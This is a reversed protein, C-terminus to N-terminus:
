VLKIFKEIGPRSSVYFRKHMGCIQFPLTFPSSISSGACADMVRYKEGNFAVIIDNASVRDWKTPERAAELLTNKIVQQASDLSDVETSFTSVIELKIEFPSFYQPLCEVLYYNKQKYDPNEEDLSKLTSDLKLQKEEDSLSKDELIGKTLLKRYDVFCYDLFEDIDMQKSM